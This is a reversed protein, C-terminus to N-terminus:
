AMYSKNTLFEIIRNFATQSLNPILKLLVPNIHLQPTIYTFTGFQPTLNFHAALQALSFAPQSALTSIAPLNAAHRIAQAIDQYSTFTFTSTGSLTLPTHPQTLMRVSANPRMGPGFLAAPRLIVTNPHTSLLSEITQKCRAYANPTPTGPLANISSIYVFQLHPLALLTQTLTLHSQIYDAETETSHPRPAQATHIILNYGGAPVAQHPQGTARNFTHAGPYAVSALWRGLGSSAGSVLVQM